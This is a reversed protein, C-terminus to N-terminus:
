NSHRANQNERLRAAANQIGGLFGGVRETPIWPQKKRLHDTESDDRQQQAAKGVLRDQFDQVLPPLLNGFPKQVRFFDLLLERFRFLTVGLNQGLRIGDRM